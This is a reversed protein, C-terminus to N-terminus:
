LDRGLVRSAIQHALQEARKGLEFQLAQVDKQIQTRGQAVIDQAVKRGQALIDQEVRLTEIRIKEREAAAAQNVRELEREYRTLIEGAQEQMKRAEARAGETRREREEFIKLVPDFLLPKLVAILLAFLVMQVLFSRDFDISVGGGSSMASNGMVSAALAGIVPQTLSGSSILGSFAIQM